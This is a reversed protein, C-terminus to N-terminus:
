DANKRQLVAFDVFIRPKFDFDEFGHGHNKGFHNNGLFHGFVFFAQNLRASKGGALADFTQAQALAVADALRHHVAAPLRDALNKGFVPFLFEATQFGGILLHVVIQVPFKGGSLEADALMDVNKVRIAHKGFVLPPILFNLVVDFAAQRRFRRDFTRILIHPVTERTGIVLIEFLTQM